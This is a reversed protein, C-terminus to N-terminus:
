IPAAEKLTSRCRNSLRLACSRRSRQGYEVHVVEFCDVVPVSMGGAVPYQFGKRVCQSPIFAASIYNAPDAAVLKRQYERGTGFLSRTGRRFANAQLHSVNRM